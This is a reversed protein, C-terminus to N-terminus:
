PRSRITVGVDMTGGYPRAPASCPLRFHGTTITGKFLLVVGAPVRYSDNRCSSWHRPPPPTPFHANMDAAGQLAIKKGGIIKDNEKGRKDVM